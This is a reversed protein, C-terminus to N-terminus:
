VLIILYICNFIKSNNAFLKIIFDFLRIIIIKELKFRKIIYANDDVNYVYKIDFIKYDFFTRYLFKKFFIKIIKLKINIFIKIIIQFIDQEYKM